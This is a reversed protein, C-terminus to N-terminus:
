SVRINRIASMKSEHKSKEINSVMTTTQMEAQAELQLEILDAFDGTATGPVGGVDDGSGEVAKMVDRFLGVGTSAPEPLYRAARAGIQAVTNLARTIENTMTNEEYM